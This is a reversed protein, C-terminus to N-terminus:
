SKKMDKALLIGSDSVELRFIYRQGKQVNVYSMEPPVLIPIIDSDGGSGVEVSFLHGKSRSYGLSQYIV